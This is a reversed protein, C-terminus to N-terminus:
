PLIMFLKGASAWDAVSVPVWRLEFQPGWSDSVAIEDTRENYGIIMCVHHNTEPKAWAALEIAKGDIEQRFAPDDKKRGATNLNAIENYDEVSCMTWMLPAGQDVYRKVDRIKLSRIEDEKTRRGKRYVASKVNELLVEVITGGGSGSLGVMALLYMDAEIGMTRMAREFTAPVCYGKPGQDVMPIESIFVDGNDERIVGDVLRKKLEADTVRASKGGSDANETSVIALSVYEGEENSLLFSHGNWDWRSIERRTDGEGYRQTDPTGLVSALSASVVRADLAMAESLSGPAVLGSKKFHDAAFGATSGFDGKNAFVISINEVKGEGDSYLAVSYPMAGFLTYDKVFAAYLRWSKGHRSTSEPRLALAKAFTEADLENFPDGNAIPLGAAKNLDAVINRANEAIKKVYEQDESGLLDFPVDFTKGDARRLTVLNNQFSLFTARIEKGAASHFSREREAASASALAALCLLIPRAKGIM